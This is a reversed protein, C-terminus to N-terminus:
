RSLCSKVALLCDYRKCQSCEGGRSSWLREHNEQCFMQFIELKVISTLEILRINMSEM